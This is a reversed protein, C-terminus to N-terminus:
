FRMNLDQFTCAGRKRKLLRSLIGRGGVGKWCESGGDRTQAAGLLSNPGGPSGQRKKSGQRQVRWKQVGFEKGETRWKDLEKEEKM